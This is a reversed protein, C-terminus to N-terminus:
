SKLLYKFYIKSTAVTTAEERAKDMRQFIKMTSKSHLINIEEM